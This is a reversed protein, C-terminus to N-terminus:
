YFFSLLPLPFHVSIIQWSGRPTWSPKLRMRIQRDCFNYWEYAVFENLFIEPIINEIRKAYSSGLLLLFLLFHIFFVFCRYSLTILFFLVCTLFLFTLHLYTSISPYCSGPGVDDESGSYNGSGKKLTLKQDM